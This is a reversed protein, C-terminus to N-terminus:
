IKKKSKKNPKNAGGLSLTVGKVPPDDDAGSQSTSTLKTGSWGDNWSSELYSKFKNFSMTPKIKKFDNELENLLDPYSIAVYDEKEPGSMKNINKHWNTSATIRSFFPDKDWTGYLGTSESLIKVTFENHTNGNSMVVLMWITNKEMTGEAFHGIYRGLYNDNPSKYMVMGTGDIYGNKCNGDWYLVAVQADSRKIKCNVPNQMLAQLKQDYDNASANMCLFSTFAYLFLGIFLSIKKM